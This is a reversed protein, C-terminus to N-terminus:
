KWDKIKEIKLKYGMKRLAKAIFEISYNISDKELRSIAQQTTNLKKALENQTLNFEKRYNLFVRIIDEKIQFTEIFEREEPVNLINKEFEEFSISQEKLNRLFKSKM